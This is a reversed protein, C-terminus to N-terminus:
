EGEQWGEIIAIGVNINPNDLVKEIIARGGFKFADVARQKLISSVGIDVFARKQELTANPNAQWLQQLLRQIEASAEALPQQEPTCNYQDVQQHAKDKVMDALNVINSNRLDYSPGTNEAMVEVVRMLQSNRQREHELTEVQSCLQAQYIAELHTLHKTYLEKASREIAAKSAKPLVELRVVFTGGSKKEIAQISLNEDDFKSRM